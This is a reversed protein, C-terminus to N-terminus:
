CQLSNNQCVVDFLMLCCWVISTPKAVITVIRVIYCYLVICVIYLLVIFLKAAYQKTNNTTNNVINYCLITSYQKTNNLITINYMNYCYNCFWCMNYSITYLITVSQIASSSSIWIKYVNIWVWWSSSNISWLVVTFEDSDYAHVCILIGYYSALSESNLNQAM